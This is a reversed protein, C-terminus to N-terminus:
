HCEEIVECSLVTHYHHKNHIRITLIKNDRPNGGVVFSSQSVRWQEDSSASQDRRVVESEALPGLISKHLYRGPWLILCEWMIVIWLIIGISILMFCTVRCMKDDCCLAAKVRGQHNHIRILFNYM